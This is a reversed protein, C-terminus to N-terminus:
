AEGEEWYEGSEIKSRPVEEVVGLEDVEEHVTHTIRPKEGLLKEEALEEAHDRHAAKVTVTREASLHETIRFKKVELKEEDDEKNEETIEELMKQAEKHNVDKVDVIHQRAPLERHFKEGDPTAYEFTM